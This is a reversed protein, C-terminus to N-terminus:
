EDFTVVQVPPQSNSDRKIATKVAVRVDINLGHIRMCELVGLAYGTGSGIAYFEDRLPDSMFSEDYLLLRGTRTLVLGSMDWSKKLAPLKKLRGAKCWDLFVVCADADGAAGALVEDTRIVKNRTTAVDSEGVILGSDSAM